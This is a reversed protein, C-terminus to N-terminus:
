KHNKVDSLYSIFELNQKNLVKLEDYLQTNNEDKLIYTYDSEMAIEFDSKTYNSGIYVTIPSSNIFYAKIEKLIEKKNISSDNDGNNISHDRYPFNISRTKKDKNTHLSNSCIFITKDLNNKLNNSLTDSTFECSESNVIDVFSGYKLGLMYRLVTRILFSFNDSLIFLKGDNQIKEILAQLQTNEQYVIEEKLFKNIEQINHLDLLHFQRSLCEFNTIKGAQWDNEIKDWLNKCEPLLFKNSLKDLIDNKSGKTITRDFDIFYLSKINSM